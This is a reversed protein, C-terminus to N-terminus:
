KQLLEAQAKGLPEFEIAFTTYVEGSGSSIRFSKVLNPRQRSSSRNPGSGASVRWIGSAALGNWFCTNQSCRSPRARCHSSPDM